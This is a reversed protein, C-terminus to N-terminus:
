LHTAVPASLPRVQNIPVQAWLMLAGIAFLRCGFFGAMVMPGYSIPPVFQGDMVDWHLQDAGALLLCALARSAPRM